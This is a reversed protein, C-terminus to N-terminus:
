GEKNVSRTRTNERIIWKNKPRSGDELGEVKTKEVIEDNNRKQVRGFQRREGENREAMTTIRSRGRTRIREM